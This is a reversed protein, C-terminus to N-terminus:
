ERGVAPGSGTEADAHEEAVAVVDVLGVEGGVPGAVPHAEVEVQEVQRREAPLLAPLVGGGAPRLRRGVLPPAQVVLVSTGPNPWTDVDLHFGMQDVYFSKARDVDTVPVVVVELKWNM